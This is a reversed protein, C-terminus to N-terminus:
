KIEFNEFKGTRRGAPLCAKGYSFEIREVNALPPGKKCWELFRKLNKEDGEAEIYVSGDDENRALGKLGSEDAKIKATHRFFVGQVRGFIKIRLFKDAM